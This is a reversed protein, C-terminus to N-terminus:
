RPTNARTSQPVTWWLSDLRCRGPSQNCQSWAAHTLRGIRDRRCVGDWRPDTQEEGKPLGPLNRVMLRSILHQNSARVVPLNTGRSGLYTFAAVFGRGLDRQIAAEWRTYYPAEREPM